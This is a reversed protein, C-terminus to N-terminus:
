LEVVFSTLTIDHEALKSWFYTNVPISAVPAYKFSRDITKYRM